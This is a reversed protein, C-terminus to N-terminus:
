LLQYEEAPYCLVWFVSYEEGPYLEANHGEAKLEEIRTKALALMKDKDGFMLAGTPCSHVCAPKMGAEVRDVCFTCKGILGKDNYKPVGFPCGEVAEQGLAKGKMKDTYVVAGSDHKIVATDDSVYMCGPDDCHRCQEKAFLWNIKGKEEKENFRVLTYTIASLNKPNEYSGECNTCEAPLSNWQKCAVQCGRCGICKSPDIFIAKTKMSVM